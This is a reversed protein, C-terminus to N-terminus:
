YKKLPFPLYCCYIDIQFKDHTRKVLSHFDDVNSTLSKIDMYDSTQVLYNFKDWFEKVDMSYFATYINDQRLKLQQPSVKISLCSDLIMLYENLSSELAKLINSDAGLGSSFAAGKYGITLVVFFGNLISIEFAHIEDSYHKAIHLINKLGDSIEIQEIDVLNIKRGQSQSLWNYILSQREVFENLGM